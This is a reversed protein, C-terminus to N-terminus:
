SSSVKATLGSTARRSSGADLTGDALRAAIRCAGVVPAGTFLLPDIRGGCAHELGERFARWLSPQSAIVSGGAVVRRARAGRRELRAVLDALAHGGERIVQAALDSGAAEAAFVIPAYAGLPAPGGIEVLRRGIYAPAPIALAEFLASVLPEDRRGGDDLHRAVRRAAERVLSASGGEDGLIWGWGGAVLMEDSPGRCVAISGTGAVLGIDGPYGLAAPMLEADNVVRVPFPSIDTFAAEFARCESEDDCGHAGVAMAAPEAGASLEQARRLLEAADARWNRARWSVTPVIHNKTGEPGCLRLYTKTGGVDIGVLTMPLKEPPAGLTITM